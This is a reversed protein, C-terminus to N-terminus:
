PEGERGSWNNIKKVRRQRHGTRGDAAGRKIFYGRMKNKFRRNFVLALTRCGAEPMLAKLRIIEKSVWEPKPQRHYYVPKTENETNQDQQQKRRGYHPLPRDSWLSLPLSKLKSLLWQGLWIFWFILLM